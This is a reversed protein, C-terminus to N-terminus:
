IFAAPQCYEASQVPAKVAIRETKAAALFSNAASTSTRGGQRQGRRGSRADRTAAEGALAATIVGGMMSLFVTALAVSLPADANIDGRRAEDVLMGETVLFALVLVAAFCIWTPVRRLQYLVEFRFVEWFTM